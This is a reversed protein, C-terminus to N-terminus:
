QQKFTSIHASSANLIGHMTFSCLLPFHSELWFSICNSKYNLSYSVRLLAIYQISRIHPLAYMRAFANMVDGFHVRYVISEVIFRSLDINLLFCINRIQGNQKNLESECRGRELCSSLQCLCLTLGNM